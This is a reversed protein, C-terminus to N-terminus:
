VYLLLQVKPHILGDGQVGGGCIGATAGSRVEKENAKAGSVAAEVEAVKSSAAELDRQRAEVAAVASELEARAATLAEM